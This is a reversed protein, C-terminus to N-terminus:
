FNVTTPVGYPLAPEVPAIYPEYEGRAVQVIHKLLDPGPLFWEQIETLLHRFKMHMKQEELRDGPHACLLQYDPWGQRHQAARSGPNMSHGIKINGGATGYYVFGKQATNM